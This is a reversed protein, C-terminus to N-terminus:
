LLMFLLWIVTSGLALSLFLRVFKAILDDSSRRFFPEEAIMVDTLFLLAFLIWYVATAYLLLVSQYDM